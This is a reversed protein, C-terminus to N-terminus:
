LCWSHLQYWQRTYDAKDRMLIRVLWGIWLRMVFHYSITGFTIALPLFTDNATVSYLVTLAATGALLCATVWNIIKAM